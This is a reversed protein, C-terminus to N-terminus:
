FITCDCKQNVLHYCPKRQLRPTRDIRSAKWCDCFKHTTHGCEKRPFFPEPQYPGYYIREYYEAPINFFIIGSETALFIKEKSFTDPNCEYNINAGDEKRWLTHNNGWVLYEEGLELRFMYANHWDMLVNSTKDKFQKLNDALSLSSNFDIEKSEEWRIKYRLDDMKIRNNRNFM